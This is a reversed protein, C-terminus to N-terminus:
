SSVYECGDPIEPKVLLVDERLIHVTGVPDGKKKVVYKKFTYAVPVIGATKAKSHFAAISAAKKLVSKPVPEKTNHIRLVVHSGSMGRSHFWYDNQKAFKTTLLDNSKSDKGVYLDYKGEILYHKFKSSIEDKGSLQQPRKIKLKQMIEDLEKSSETRDLLEELSKLNKYDRKASEFLQQNKAFALKENRSKEFYYDVNKQPSLAPNLKIDIQKGDAFVDDLTISSMRPRISSINNLLLKGFKNYEVEKSGRELLGQLNQIKNTVKKLERDIHNRIIKEKSYKNELFYNKSLFYLLAENVDSFIKKEKFPFSKFREFGLYLEKEAANIFVTPSASKVDLLVDIIDKSIDEASEDNLRTKVEKIIESGIIPFKKRIDELENHNLLKPLAIQNWVSIFRKCDIEKQIQLLTLEDLVKFSHFRDDAEHFFVNTFKGRITFYIESNTLSLKIIRDDDAIEISNIIQGIAKEFLSITNKKARTFKDRLLIYANGPIVCLEIFKVIENGSIEIILKSKEQSFIDKIVSKEILSKSDLVFRNLFFYNQFM